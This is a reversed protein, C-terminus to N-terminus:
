GSKKVKLPSKSVEAILAGQLLILLYLISNIIMRLESRLRGSKGPGSKAKPLLLQIIKWQRDAMDSEYYGM